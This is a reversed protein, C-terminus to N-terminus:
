RGRRGRLAIVRSSGGGAFHAWEEALRRRREFLDSRQYAREVASGVVHGLALEALDRDVGREAAWQRFASRFGHATVGPDVRQVAKLVAHQGLDPFVREGTRPLAKLMAAAADCLPIRHDRDGKMRVAPIVWLQAALDIESWAAFRVEGTRTATLVMLEAARAGTEKDARLQAMFAPLQAHPLAPLHAEPQVKSRQPLAADLHGKWAAPNEGSRLKRVTAWDIVLKIRNLVRTATETKDQWLPEVISLVDHTDVQDILREGIKPLVYRNLSNRWQRAHDASKWGKEHDAIYLETARAFTIAERAPRRAANRTEIPDLGDLLLRRQATARERAESLGILPFPGLGM